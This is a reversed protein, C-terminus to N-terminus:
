ESTHHLRPVLTACQSSFLDSWMDGSCGLNLLSPTIRGIGMQRRLNSKIVDVFKRKRAGECFKWFRSNTEDNRDTQRDTQIFAVIRGGSSPNERFKINPYKEISQRSFRVFFPVKCACCYVSKFV